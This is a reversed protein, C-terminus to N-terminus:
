AKQRPLRIELHAGPAGGVFRAQGGHRRAVHAILALGLGHGPIPPRVQTALRVFPEFALRRQEAPIGPGDDDVRLVADARDEFTSVSVRCGFKLANSLSNCFLLGLLATDGRVVVDGRAELLQIRTREAQPVLAILDEALDHLSLLESASWQSEDPLALVLLRELLTSLEIVRRQARALSAQVDPGLASEESLLELEGRVATLPTRLEHAAEAAFREAQRLAREVRELLETIASRLADVETIGTTPGLSQSYTSTFDIAGVQQRLECLPGMLWRAIPRSALWAGLGALLAALASSLAFLFTLEVRGVAAVVWLNGRAPVGCARLSPSHTCEAEFSGPLHPDGALLERTNRDFIAFAVGTHRTERVEDAVVEALSHFGHVEDDLEAALVLAADRVRQDHARRTLYTAFVSTVGAAILAAFMASAAAGLAVRHLLSHSPNRRSASRSTQDM